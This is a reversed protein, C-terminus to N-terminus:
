VMVGANAAAIAQAVPPCVSNGIRAVQSTKTGTLIYDSPFGQANALERPTLMRMGIDVIVYLEGHITVTVLGFRDNTTATPMPHWLNAGIATGFYKVLFSYVLAAHNVQTVTPLPASIPVGSDDHNFRILNAAVLGTKNHQTTVTPMPEDIANWQKAGHNMRILNATTLALAHPAGAPRASGEGSTITPMADTIPVGNCEGRFKTLFASVVSHHDKATITDVPNDLPTGPTEHGGFHKALFAAVLAHKQGDSVVTGLPANLDLCRPAQGEREGYGTQILTPSILALEGRHATTITPLPEDIGPVTREGAHTIPVVYPTVVCRDNKATITNVPDNVSAPETQGMRGGVGVIFPEAADLVYRKIGMAIRRMTKDALPRKRDFISPCPISWDICEAATRWPKLQAFLPTASLKKPDGHTPEPWEIPAGDCRAILFLRRRHTPAGFDAANLNRYEVQYDLGRLRNCFLRFTMGKKMPDPMLDLTVKIRLSNCRPCRRRTRALIAQGETGKWGCPCTWQPVLPGWDAFERVNELMIQRPKVQSAWKVVVWALSRIEKQVPVAGKARSFHKCDPSAWLLGVPKGGTLQRLDTEWVNEKVHITHPHNAAHMALADADHNIAIDPSRGLAWEIGLSAGGGGAFSDIILEHEM